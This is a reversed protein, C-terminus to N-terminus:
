SQEALQTMQESLRVRDRDLEVAFEALVQRCRDQPVFADCSRVVQVLLHAMDALQQDLRSLLRTRLIAVRPASSCTM